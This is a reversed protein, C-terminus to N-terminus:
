ASSPYNAGRTSDTAHRPHMGGDVDLAEDDAMPLEGGDVAQIEAHGGALDEGQEPGVSGALGRGDLGELAVAAGRGTPDADQAEVGDVLVSRQHGLDAHHQLM